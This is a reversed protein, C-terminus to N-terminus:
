VGSFIRIPVAILIASRGDFDWHKLFEPTPIKQLEEYHPDYITVVCPTIEQIAVLHGAEERFWSEVPSLVFLNSANKGSRTDIVMKSLGPLSLHKRVLVSVKDTYAARFEPTLAVNLISPMVHIGDTEQLALKNRLASELVERYLEPTITVGTIKSLVSM